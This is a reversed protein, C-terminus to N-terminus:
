ENADYVATIASAIYKLAVYLETSNVLENASKSLVSGQAMLINCKGNHRAYMTGYKATKNHILNSNKNDPESSKKDASVILNSTSINTGKGNSSTNLHGLKYIPIACETNPPWKGSDENNEAGYSIAYTNYGREEAPYSPISPCFFSKPILAPDRYKADNRIDEFSPGGMYQAIRAIGSKTCVDVNFHGSRHQIYGDNDDGYMLLANGVTKLNGVCSASRGAERAKSLAPLLMAALIAIIAIVVLLEILTFSKERTTIQM